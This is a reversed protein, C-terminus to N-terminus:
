WIRSSSHFFEFRDAAEPSFGLEEFMERFVARYEEEPISEGSSGVPMVIELKVKGSSDLEVIYRNGEDYTTVKAKPISYKVSGLRKRDKLFVETPYANLGFGSEYSPEDSNELLYAYVAPFNPSENMQIEADWTQNQAAKKLAALYKEPANEDPGFLLGLKELMWSDEPFESLQLPSEPDAHSLNSVAVCTQGGSESGNECVFVMLESNESNLRINQVLAASGFNERVESVDGPEFGSFNGPWPWSGEVEYGANEAKTLVSSYDLSGIDVDESYYWSSDIFSMLIFPGFLYLVFLLPLFLLLILIAKQKKM